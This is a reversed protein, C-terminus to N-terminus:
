SSVTQFKVGSAVFVNTAEPALGAVVGRSAARPFSNIMVMTVFSSAERCTHSSGVSPARRPMFGPAMAMSLEVSVGAHTRSSALAILLIPTISSSAVTDPLVGCASLASSTKRTPPSALERSRASGTSAVRPEVTRWAPGAPQPANALNTVFVSMPTWNAAKASNIPQEFTLLDIHLLYQVRDRCCRHPVGVEGAVSFRHQRAVELSQERHPKEFLVQAVSHLGPSSFSRHWG